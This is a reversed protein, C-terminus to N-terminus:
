WESGLPMILGNTKRENRRRAADINERQYRAEQQDPTLRLVFTRRDAALSRRQQTHFRASPVSAGVANIGRCPAVIRARQKSSV